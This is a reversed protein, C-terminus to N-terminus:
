QIYDILNSEKLSGDYPDNFSFSSKIDDSYDSYKGICLRLVDMAFERSIKGFLNMDLIHDLLRELEDQVGKLLEGDYETGAAFVPKYGDDFGQLQGDTSGYLMELLLHTESFDTMSHINEGIRETINGYLSHVSTMDSIYKNPVCSTGMAILGLKKDLIRGLGYVLTGQTVIDIIAPYDTKIIGVSDLYGLYKERERASNRIIEDNYKSLKEKLGELGWKDIAEANTIDYEKSLSVHFQMRYFDKLNLKPDDEIKNSFVDIDESTYISARSVASRSMYIYKSPPLNQHPLSLRLKEYMKHLFFGDRSAFFLMDYHFANATIYALYVATIPFIRFAIDRYSSISLKGKSENLIFPDNFMESIFYGLIHRDSVNRVKDFLFAGSSEALIDYGKKIYFTDIGKEKARVIDNDLSDGIHVISPTKAREKLVDFLGGSEKTADYECSVILECDVGIGASCLIRKIDKAKFFMDSTLFVRKNKKIAYLLVDAMKQRPICVSQEIELETEKLVSIVKRDFNLDHGMCEYIRDITPSNYLSYMKREAEIRAEKYKEALTELESGYFTANELLSCSVLDFVDRSELVRRTILTDFVDFSIVEHEDITKYLDDASCNWYENNQYTEDGTLVRGHMSYVPISAPVDGKIRDYIIATSSPIAAIIIIGVHEIAESLPVVKLGYVTENLHDTAILCEFSYGNINELITQANKGIGYIGIPIERYEGFHEDFSKQLKNVIDSM